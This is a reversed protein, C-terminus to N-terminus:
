LFASEDDFKEGRKRINEERRTLKLRDTEELIPIAYKRTFGFRDRLQPLTIESNESLVERIYSVIEHWTKMLFIFDAGCKHGRRSDLIFRIAERYAKGGAVIEKIAPPAYPNDRLLKVVKDYATKVEGSLHVDRGVLSIIDDEKALKMNEILFRVLLDTTPKDFSSVQQIQESLMGHLHSKEKLYASMESILQETAKEMTVPSYFGNQYGVLKKESVLRDVCRMIDNSSFDANELLHDERVFISKEFESHVLSVLSGDLRNFLYSFKDIARRRPFQPLHDLVSGGGLTVMPTPLRMIFRDGILCCTPHDPRFFIVGKEGPRIKKEHYLRIEGEVETTGVIMLVRRRDEIEVLANPLLELHLALVFNTNFFDLNDRDSILGGRVLQDREIGTLSVATRQGPLAKEVDVANSQLSRIKAKNSGPWITVKQGVEFSGGRLSGTAVGGFGPRVFSRDISLRAKGIDKRMEVTGHLTDLYAVLADFGAGTQASVSFVPSDELFSGKTKESVESELLELWDSEVLDIKNIVTIGHQVGLLRVVHFHEESQPMWGDDAAIVLMVVDIGGAGAIMNKVFREHGPVDVFAITDQNSTTYFAFGLDITMGRSKEEPLRDPDTGTLRRVISSKGHDIHGATGVVLM